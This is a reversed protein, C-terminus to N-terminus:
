SFFIAHPVNTTGHTHTACTWYYITFMQIRFHCLDCIFLYVYKWITNINCKRKVCTEWFTYVQYLPKLHILLAATM